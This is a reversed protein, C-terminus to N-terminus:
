LKLPNIQLETKIIITIIIKDKNWHHYLSMLKTVKKYIFRVTCKASFQNISPLTSLMNAWSYVRPYHYFIGVNRFPLLFVSKFWFLFHMWGQLHHIHDVYHFSCTRDNMQTLSNIILNIVSVM